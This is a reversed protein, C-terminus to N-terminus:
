KFLSCRFHIYFYCGLFTSNNSSYKFIKKYITFWQYRNLRASLCFVLKISLQAVWGIQETKFIGIVESANLSHLKLRRFSYRIQAALLKYFNRHPAPLHM